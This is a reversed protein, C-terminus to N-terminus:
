FKKKPHPCMWPAPTEKDHYTPRPSNFGNQIEPNIKLKKPAPTEKDYYPSRSSNFENQNESNM